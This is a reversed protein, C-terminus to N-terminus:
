CMMNNWTKTTSLREIGMGSNPDRRKRRDEFPPLPSIFDSAEFQSKEKSSPTQGEGTFKVRFTVTSCGV